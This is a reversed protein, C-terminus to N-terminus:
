KLEIFEFQDLVNPYFIGVWFDRQISKYWALDKNWELIDEALQDHLFANETYADDGYCYILYEYIEYMEAVQSEATVNQIVILVGMFITVIILLAAVVCVIMDCSWYHKLAIISFVTMIVALVAIIWFIM